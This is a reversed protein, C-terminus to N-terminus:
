GRSYLRECRAALIFDNRQLGGAAHTWWSVTVGGWEILLAPHHGETEALEGIRNSFALASVFDDFVFRRELRMVGAHMVTTWGVLGDMWRNIEVATLPPMGQRCEECAMEALTTM